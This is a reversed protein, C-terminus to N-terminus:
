GSTKASEIWIRRAQAAVIRTARSSPPVGKPRRLTARSARIATPEVPARTKAMCTSVLAWGLWYEVPSLM